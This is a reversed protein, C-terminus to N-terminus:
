KEELIVIATIMDGEDSLSTHIKYEIDAININVIPRGGDTQKWEANKWSIIQQLYDPCAKYLAEKIAWTKALKSSRLAPKLKLYETYENDTMIKKALATKDLFRNLNTLDIGVGVIM